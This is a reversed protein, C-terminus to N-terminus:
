LDHTGKYKALELLKDSLEDQTVKFREDLIDYRMRYKASTVAIYALWLALLWHFWSVGGILPNIGMFQLELEEAPVADAKSAFLDVWGNWELGVYYKDEAVESTYPCHLNACEYISLSHGQAKYVGVSSILTLMIAIFMAGYLRLM